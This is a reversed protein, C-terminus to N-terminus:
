RTALSREPSALRSNEPASVAANLFRTVGAGLPRYVDLHLPRTSAGVHCRGGQCGLRFRISSSDYCASSDAGRMARCSGPPRRTAGSGRATRPLLRAASWRAGKSRGHIGDLTTAGRDIRGPVSPRRAKSSPRRVARPTIRVPTIRVEAVRQQGACKV